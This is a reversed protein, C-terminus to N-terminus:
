MMWRIAGVKFAPCITTTSLRLAWWLSRARAAIASRPAVRRYRGGYEGSKL